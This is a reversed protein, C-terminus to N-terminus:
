RGFLERSINQATRRFRVNRTDHFSIYAKDDELLFAPKTNDRCIDQMDARASCQRFLPGHWALQGERSLLWNILIKAANPHPANNVIAPGSISASYFGSLNTQQKGEGCCTPVIKGQFEPAIPGFDFREQVVHLGVGKEHFPNMDAGVCALMEGRILDSAMKRGDRSITLGTELLLRRLFEEGRTVLAETFFTAGPGPARPDDACWKGKLGPKFLDELKNFDAEPLDKRNVYLAAEGPTAIMKFLIRKTDQDIWHDDFFGIWNEDGLVDPRIMIARTNGLIPDGSVKGQPIATTIATTGGALWVDVSYIGAKREAVFRPYTSRAAGIIATVKIGYKDEFVQLSERDTVRFVNVIVEGEKKAAALTRDWDLEWAAKGPTPTPTPTAPRPTEGPRPTPTATPTATPAATTATPTATPDAGGCAAALATLVALVCGALVSRWLAQRISKVHM